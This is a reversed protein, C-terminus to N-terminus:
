RPTARSPTNHHRAGRRLRGPCSRAPPGLGVRVRFSRVVSFHAQDWGERRVGLAFGRVGLGLRRLMYRRVRVRVGFGLGLRVGVLGIALRRLRVAVLHVVEGALGDCLPAVRPVLSPRPLPTAPLLTDTTRPPFGCAVIVPCVASERWWWMVVCRLLFM